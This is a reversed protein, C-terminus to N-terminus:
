RKAQESPKNRVPNAPDAQDPLPPIQEIMEETDKQGPTTEGSGIDAEEWGQMGPQPQSGQAPQNM